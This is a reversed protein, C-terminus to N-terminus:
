LYFMFMLCLIKIGCSFFFPQCTAKIPDLLIGCHAFCKFCPGVIHFKLQLQNQGCIFDTCTEQKIHGLFAHAYELLFQHSRRLLM